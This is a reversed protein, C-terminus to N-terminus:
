GRLVALGNVTGVFLDGDHLYAAAYHNNFPTGSGARRTWVVDGTALDVATFYWADVGIASPPKTYTLVLGGVTTAKSVLSPIHIDSSWRVQCRGADIATLGPTTTRGATTSTIAPKYGYNNEVVLAGDIAILSNETASAGDAFVPQECTVEGTRRDMVVVNMRPEANDTIAVSDGFVTPTTGTARSTQGPKQSSGTDYTTRWSVEPPGSIGAELRYLAAGTAVYIGEQAVAFSNEIDESGLNIALPGGDRVVGVTGLSGVYWYRGQWDPLVSTVQEDPLLTAAVDIFGVEQLGAATALIRITGGRAPFVIRDESDLVFYGGGSFDTLSPAREGVVQRDLVELTAPDVVLAIVRTLTSCLTILRGRPDFTITACDGGTFLSDVRARLPDTPGPLSYTDTAWSDNHISNFPNDALAPNQPTGTAPLDIGAGPGGTGKAALLATPDAPLSTSMSGVIAIGTAGAGFAALWWWRKHGGTDVESRRLVLLLVLSTIIALTLLLWPSLGFPRLFPVAAHALVVPQLLLAGIGRSRHAVGWGSLLLLLVFLPGLLFALGQATVDAVQVQTLSKGVTGAGVFYNSVALVPHILVLAEVVLLLAATLRLGRLSM